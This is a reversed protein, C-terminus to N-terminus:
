DALASSYYFANPSFFLTSLDVINFSSTRDVSVVRAATERREDAWAERGGLLAIVLRAVQTAKPTELAGSRIRLAPMLWGM